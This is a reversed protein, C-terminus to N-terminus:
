NGRPRSARVIADHEHIFRGKPVEAALGLIALSVIKSTVSRYRRLGGHLLVDTLPSALMALREAPRPAGGRPGRLLGPRLIDLRDFELAALAAEVEGKVRLYFNRSAPDAGVSSVAICRPVGAAKAASACDLVLKEDVARFAAEDRGAARWTTGLAVVLADAQAGAILGPWESSPAVLLEMRVGPPLAFERRALATLRVDSRGVTQAIVASGILGSAGVLVIRGSASSTESM